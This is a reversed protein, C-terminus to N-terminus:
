NPRHQTARAGTTRRMDVSVLVKSLLHLWARHPSDSPLNELGKRVWLKMSQSNETRAQSALAKSLNQFARRREEAGRAPLQVLNLWLSPWEALNLLVAGYVKSDSSVDSCLKQLLEALRIHPSAQVFRLCTLLLDVAQKSLEKSAAEDADSIGSIISQRILKDLLADYKGEAAPAAIGLDWVESRMLQLMDILQPAACKSVASLIQSPFRLIVSSGHTKMEASSMFIFTGEEALQRQPWVPPIGAAATRDSNRIFGLLRHIRASPTMDVLLAELVRVVSTTANASALADLIAFATKQQDESLSLSQDSVLARKLLERILSNSDSPDLGSITETSLFRMAIFWVHMEQSYTPRRTDASLVFCGKATKPVTATAFNPRISRKHPDPCAAFLRLLSRIQDNWDLESTLVLGANATLSKGTSLLIAINPELFQFQSPTVPQQLGQDLNEAWHAPLGIQSPPDPFQDVFWSSDHMFVFRSEPVVLVQATSAVGRLGGSQPSVRILARHSTSISVLLWYPEFPARSLDTWGLLASLESDNLSGDHSAILGHNGSADRMGFDFRRVSHM